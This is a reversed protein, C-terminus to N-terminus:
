IPRNLNPGGGTLDKESATTALFLSLEIWKRAEFPYLPDAFGVAGKPGRSKKYSGITADAVCLARSM